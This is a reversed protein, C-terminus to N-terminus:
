DTKPPKYLGARNAGILGVRYTRADVRTLRAAIGPPILEHQKVDYLADSIADLAEDRVLWKMRDFRALNLPSAYGRLTRERPLNYYHEFYSMALERLSRYVPERYRLGTFNSKAVAGWRGNQKFVALLHDDDRDTPLLDVILPQHGLVRLAAAAFVAGDFCHAMRDAIVNRPCRYREEPSYTLGDLFAQIKLPADLRAFVRREAATLLADFADAM